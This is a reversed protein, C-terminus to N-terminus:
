RLMDIAKNTLILELETDPNFAIGDFLKEELHSAFVQKIRVGLLVSGLQENYLEKKSM